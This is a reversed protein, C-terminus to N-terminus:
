TDEAVSNVPASRAQRAIAEYLPMLAESIRDVMGQIAGRSISVGLVSACFEQVASRGNRQSGSWEGVLATLRPGYGYRHSEPL